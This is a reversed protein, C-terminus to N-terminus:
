RRGGSRAPGGARGSVFAGIGSALALVSVGFPEAFAAAVAWPLAPRARVAVAAIAAALAVLGIMWASGAFARLVSKPGPGMTAAFFAVASFRGVALLGIASAALAAM